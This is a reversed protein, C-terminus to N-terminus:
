KDVPFNNKKVSTSTYPKKRRNIQFKRVATNHEALADSFYHSGDGKAVFYLASTNEPNAAALLSQRGPMAIPSPPLGNIRYTNYPTKQTLHKRTLNGDFAEGLGYIVTPDTQLRMGKKLRSAFVGAIKKRELEVATEKEIISALILLEYANKLPADKSAGQWARELERKMKDAAQTLVKYDTDGKVYHYTDPFLWGEPNSVTLKLLSAIQAPTSDRLTQKLKSHKQLEAMYDTFRWGEVFTIPYDVVKGSSFLKMLSPFTFGPMIRYEGAKIQSRLGTYKAYLNLGFDDDIIGNSKLENLLSTFNQGKSIEFIVSGGNVYRPKEIIDKWYNHSYLAVGIGTLFVVLTLLKLSM